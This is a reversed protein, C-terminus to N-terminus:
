REESKSADDGDIDMKDGDANSAQLLPSVIDFVASSM